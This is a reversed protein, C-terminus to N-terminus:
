QQVEAHIRVIDDDMPYHPLEDNPASSQGPPDHILTERTRTFAEFGSRHRWTDLADASTSTWSVRCLSGSSQRWYRQSTAARVLATPFPTRPPPARRVRFAM